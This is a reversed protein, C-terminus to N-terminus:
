EMIDDGGDHFNEGVPGNHLKEDTKAPSDGTHNFTTADDKAETPDQFAIALPFMSHCKQKFAPLLESCDGLFGGEITEYSFM